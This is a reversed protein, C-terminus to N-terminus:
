SESADTADSDADPDPSSGRGALLVADTEASQRAYAAANEPLSWDVRLSPVMAALADYGAPEGFCTRVLDLMVEVSVSAGPSAGLLAALSRDANSVVETGFHVIGTRGDEKKIAQVRIGADLLRWDEARAEPYFTRLLELRRAMTQTGERLLYGVLPLEKLGVKVLTGVNDPRLTSPLNWLSGSGKLFRTTWAAYPGFLLHDRGEIRRRDLHPAAMTPAEGQPQGYVKAPHRAVVEPRDCVLWQGGVPFSGYGRVEELGAKQLLPLTGGGAGVFVFGAEERWTEGSRSDRMAAEWGGRVRELGVVKAGARAACGRERGLWDILQRAIEGFDVDSGEAVRTAAFAEDAPRGEAVLPAWELLRERSDGYEMSAFFHHGRLGEYRAKLYDVQERGSVFSIHATPNYFRRPDRLIGERLCAAWFERSREFQAFIEVAKAVKVTGDPERYPTYSLECLGAHGTGANNWASSSEPAFGDGAEYLRISAGPHAKKLLVGLTASMIGGGILLIDTRDM